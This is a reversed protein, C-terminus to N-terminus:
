PVSGGSLAEAGLTHTLLSFGHNHFVILLTLGVGVSAILEATIGAKVIRGLLVVGFWGALGALVVPVMGPVVVGHPTADIGFTTLAWPAGLYAVTTNAVAYAWIAVWGAFWGYTSGILRRSWQYAGGAIPFEAALETYVGLLLCQGALAVPLVWVGAPGPLPAGVVLVAFLGLVPSLGALGLAVTDGLRLRRQLEQRYGLEKLRVADADM